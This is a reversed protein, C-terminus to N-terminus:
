RGGMWLGTGLVFGNMTEARQGFTFYQTRYGLQFYIPIRPLTYFINTDGEWGLLYLSVKGGSGPTSEQQKFDGPFYASGRFGLSVGSGGIQVVSRVGARAFTVTSDTDFLSRRGYGGEVNFSRQGVFIMAEQLSFDENEFTGQLSRAGIGAEHGPTALIADFGRISASARGTIADSLSTNLKTDISQAGIQFDVPYNTQGKLVSVSSAAGFLFLVVQRRITM